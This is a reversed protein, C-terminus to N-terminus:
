ATATNAALVHALRQLAREMQAELEKGKEASLGWGCGRICLMKQPGMPFAKLELSGHIEDWALAVETKTIALVRGSVTGGEQLELRFKDGVEGFAGNRTLWKALKAPDRHFPPVQEFAFEAPHIVLFSTRPTGYYNELYHKLLAVAMRWGSDTGEYENDWEAGERFGSNVLRMVTEGDEKAITIELVGPNMGPPPNWRIVFKKAPEAVLVEYPIRYNFKDFIWTITAGPEAKGEAKDPFWHAIKEPDAWAEYVQDPTASTRIEVRIIRGRHEIPQDNKESMTQKRENAKVM